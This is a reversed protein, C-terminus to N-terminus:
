GAEGMFRMKKLIGLATTAVLILTNLYVLWSQQAYIWELLSPRPDTLFARPGTSVKAALGHLSVHLGDQVELARVFFKEIDEIVVFERPGISLQEQTEPFSLTNSESILTSVRTRGELRTLDLGGAVAFENAALNTGPLAELAFTARDPKGSFEIVRASESIFRLNASDIRNPAGEIRCYSCDFLQSEQLPLRGVMSKDRSRLTLVNPDEQSWEMTLPTGAPVELSNLPINYFTVSSYNSDAALTIEPSAIIPSWNGNGGADGSDTQQEVVGRGFIIREFNVLELSALQPARFSVNEGAVFAMRTTRLDLEIQSTKKILALPALIVATLVFPLSLLLRYRKRAEAAKPHDPAPQPIKTPATAM